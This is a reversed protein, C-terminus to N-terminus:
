SAFSMRLVFTAVLSLGMGLIFSATVIVGATIQRRKAAVLVSYWGYFVAAGALIGVTVLAVAVWLSHAVAAILNYLGLLVMAAAAAAIAAVKRRLVGYGAAGVLIIFLAYFGILVYSNSGSLLGSLSWLVRVMLYIFGSILLSYLFLQKKTLKQM